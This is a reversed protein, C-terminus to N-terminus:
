YVSNKRIMPTPIAKTHFIMILLPAILIVGVILLINLLSTTGAISSNVDDSYKNYFAEIDADNAVDSFMLFEKNDTDYFFIEQRKLFFISDRKLKYEVIGVTVNSTYTKIESEDEDTDPNDTSVVKMIEVEKSLSDIVNVSGKHYYSEESLKEDLAGTFNGNGGNASIPQIWM